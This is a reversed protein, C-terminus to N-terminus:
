PRGREEGRGSEPLVGMDRERLFKTMAVETAAPPEMTREAQLLPPPPPPVPPPPEVLVALYEATVMPVASSEV